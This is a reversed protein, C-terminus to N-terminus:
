TAADGSIEFWVTKGDRAMDIGWCTTLRDLLHLGRGTPSVEAYSRRVPAVPSGDAVEVRVTSGDDVVRVSM